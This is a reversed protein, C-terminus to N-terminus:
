GDGSGEMAKLGSRSEGNGENEESGDQLESVAAVTSEAGDVSIGKRRRSADSRHQVETTQYPLFGLSIHELLYFSTLEMMADLVDEFVDFGHFTNEGM